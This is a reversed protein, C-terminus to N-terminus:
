FTFTDIAWKGPDALDIGVAISLKTLPFEYGGNSSFSGSKIHVKFIAVVMPITILLSALPTLLGLIFLVGGGIESLDALFAMTVGNKMGMSEFRKGMGQM